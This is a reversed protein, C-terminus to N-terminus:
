VHVNYAQSNFQLLTEFSTQAKQTKTGRKPWCPLQQSCCDCTILEEFIWCIFTTYVCFKKRRNLKRPYYYEAVFILDMFIQGCHNIWSLSIQILSYIANGGWLSSHIFCQNLELLFNFETLLFHGRLCQLFGTVIVTACYCDCTMCCVERSSEQDNAAQVSKTTEDPM